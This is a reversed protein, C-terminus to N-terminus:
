HRPTRGFGPRGGFSNAEKEARRRKRCKLCRKPPNLGKSKFFEQDKVTYLFQDGCEQEVCVLIIDLPNQKQIETIAM